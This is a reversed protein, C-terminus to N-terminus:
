QYHGIHNVAYDAPQGSDVICIISYYYNSFLIIIEHAGNLTDLYAVLANSEISLTNM